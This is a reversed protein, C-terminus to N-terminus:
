RAAKINKSVMNNLIANYDLESLNDLFDDRYEDFNDDEKPATSSTNKPAIENQRIANSEASNLISDYDLDSLSDLGDFYEDPNGDVKQVNDNTNKYNTKNQTAINLEANNVIANYDSESLNDLFDDRYEDPNDDIKPATNSTNKLNIGNQSITSSNLDYTSVLKPKKNNKDTQKYQGEKQSNLKNKNSSSGNPSTTDGRINRLYDQVASKFKSKFRPQRNELVARIKELKGHFFEDMLKRQIDRNKCQQIVSYEPSYKLMDLFRKYVYYYHTKQIDEIGGPSAPFRLTPGDKDFMDLLMSLSDNHDITHKLKYFEIYSLLLSKKSRLRETSLIMGAIEFSEFTMAKDIETVWSNISLIGKPSLKMIRLVNIAFKQIEEPHNIFKSLIGDKNKKSLYPKVYGSTYSDRKEDFNVNNQFLFKDTSYERSREPQQIFMDHRLGGYSFDVRICISIGKEDYNEFMDIFKQRQDFKGFDVKWLRDTNVEDDDWILTPYDESENVERFFNLAEWYNYNDFLADTGEREKDLMERKKIERKYLDPANRYTPQSKGNYNAYNSQNGNYKRSNERKNSKQSYTQSQDYSNDSRFRKVGFTNTCLLM